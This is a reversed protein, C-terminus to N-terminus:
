ELWPRKLHDDVVEKTGTRGRLGIPAGPDRQETKSEDQDLKKPSHCIPDRVIKKHLDTQLCEEFQTGIEIGIQLRERKLEV